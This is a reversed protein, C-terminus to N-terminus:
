NIVKLIRPSTGTCIFINFIALCALSVEHQLDFIFSVCHPLHSGQVYPRNKLLDFCLLFVDPRHQWHGKVRLHVLLFLDSYGNDLEALVLFDLDFKLNLLSNPLHMGFPRWNRKGSEHRVRFDLQILVDLQSLNLFIGNSIGARCFYKLHMLSHELHHIGLFADVTTLALLCSLHQVHSM